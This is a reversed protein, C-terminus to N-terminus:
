ELFFFWSQSGMDTCLCDHKIWISECCYPFTVNVKIFSHNIAGGQYAHWTVCMVKTGTVLQQLSKIFALVSVTSWWHHYRCKRYQMYVEVRLSTHLTKKSNEAPNSSYLKEFSLINYLAWCLPVSLSPSQNEHLSLMTLCLLNVLFCITSSEKTCLARPFM